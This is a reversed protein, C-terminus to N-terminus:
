EQFDFNSIEFFLQRRFIEFLNLGWFCPNKIWVRLLKSNTKESDQFDIFIVMTFVSLLGIESIM